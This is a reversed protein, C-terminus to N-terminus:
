TGCYRKLVETLKISDVPKSLYDTYGAALCADRDSDMANATLAIIPLTVNAHRLAKTATLGDMEPMQVDMLVVDFQEAASPSATLIRVAERGSSAEVVCGNLKEIFRATLFRIDRRDDVVLARLGSRFPEATQSTAPLRDPADTRRHGADRVSVDRDNLNVLRADMSEIGTLILRFTSGQNPSSTMEIDGGLMEALQKSISLGLGSGGYQRVISNDAQEFNQFLRKQNEADIGVGTDIVAFSLQALSREYRTVLRVQGADTFKIANGVLNILIQRIRLPDSKITSPIPTEYETLFDLSKEAARVSMLSAVSEVLEIPSFELLDLDMKGAEIRSLDLIDNILSLLFRGNQRITEIMEADGPSSPQILDAYGLIAAMPSRIEHSMNALFDSKARSAADAERKAVELEQEREVRATIDQVAVLARSPNRDEDFFFHKRVNVWRVTQDPRLVRHECQMIGNSEGRLAAELTQHLSPWDDPHILSHIEDRTAVSQDAPLGFISMATPTMEILNNAYDVQGLGLGGVAAGLQLQDQSERLKREHMLTDHIDINTGLWRVVKGSRNRIPTIRCLFWRFEGDHRRLPFQDEVLDGSSVAKMIGSTARSVHDPHHISKWGWGDMHGNPVGTYELWQRNSWFVRGSPDVMWALEAINNALSDFLDVSDNDVNM